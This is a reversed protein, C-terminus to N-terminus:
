RNFSLDINGGEEKLRKLVNQCRAIRCKEAVIIAAIHAAATEMEENIVAYDYHGLEELERYAAAFRRQIEAPTDTGRKYIRKLLDQMTPPLLFVFVGDKTNRRVQRAGETDIELIVDRGEKRMEDVRRAPTGYYHGHVRAWELLFGEDRLQMFQEEPVFYYNVGDREGPRPSRTTLSVSYYLNPNESCLVKCVSGKGVGAPGSIVLLLGEKM